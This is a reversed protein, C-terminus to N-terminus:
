RRWWRREDVVEGRATHIAFRQILLAGAEDPGIHPRQRSKRTEETLPCHLSVVDAGAFLADLDTARTRETRSPRTPHSPTM